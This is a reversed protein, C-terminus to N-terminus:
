SGMASMKGVFQKVDGPLPLYRWIHNEVKYRILTPTIIDPPVLHCQQTKDESGLTTPEFGGPRAM